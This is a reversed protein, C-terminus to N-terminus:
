KEEPPALAAKWLCTECIHYKAAVLDECFFETIEALANGAAKLNEVEARLRDIEKWCMAHKGYRVESGKPDPSTM